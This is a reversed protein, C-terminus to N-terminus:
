RKRAHELLSVPVRLMYRALSSRGESIADAQVLHELVATRITTM